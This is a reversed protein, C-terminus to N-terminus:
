PLGRRRGTAPGPRNAVVLACAPAPPHACPTQALAPPLPRSETRGRRRQASLPCIESLFRTIVTDDLTNEFTAAINQFINEFANYLNHLRYALVILAEEGAEDTLTPTGIARYLQEIAQLDHWISRELLLFKERM